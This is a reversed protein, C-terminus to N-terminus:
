MEKASVSGRSLPFPYVFLHSCNSLKFSTEKVVIWTQTKSPAIATTSPFGEESVM